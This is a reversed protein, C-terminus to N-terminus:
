RVKFRLQLVTDARLATLAVRKRPGLVYAAHTEGFSYRSFQGIASARSSAVTRIFHKM